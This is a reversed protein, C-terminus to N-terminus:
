RRFLGQPLDGFGGGDYRAATWGANTAGDVDTDSDGIMGYRDAPLRDELLRYPPTDPKHAGVEYSTVVADFYTDLDHARLKALQWDRLGNTLVGLDYTEALRELDEHANQPPSLSEIERELLANAYPEPDTCGDIRAFARRIPDPELASFHEFFAEDYAELWEEPADGRVDAIASALLDRYNRSTCLLTGDLDFVIATM